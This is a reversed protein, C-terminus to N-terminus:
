DHFLRTYHIVNGRSRADLLHKRFVDVWFGEFATNSTRGEPRPTFLYVALPIQYNTM